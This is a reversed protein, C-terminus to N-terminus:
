DNSNNDNYTDLLQREEAQTLPRLEREDMKPLRLAILPNTQAYGERELWSGFTKLTRVYHHVTAGSIGQETVGDLTPHGQWKAQGPGRRPVPAGPRPLLTLDHAAPRLETDVM